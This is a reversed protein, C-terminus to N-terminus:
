QSAPESGGPSTRQPARAPPTPEPDADDAMPLRGTMHARFRRMDTFLAEAESRGVEASPNGADALTGGPGGRAGTGGEYYSNTQGDSWPQWAEIGGMFHVVASVIMAFVAAAALPPRLSFYLRRRSWGTGDQYLTVRDVSAVQQRQAALNSLVKTRVRLPAAEAPWGKPDRLLSEVRRCAARGRRTRYAGNPQQNAAAVPM